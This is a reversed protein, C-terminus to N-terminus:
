ALFVQNEAPSSSPLPQEKRVSDLKSSPTWPPSRLSAFHMDAARVASLLELAVDDVVHAGPMAARTKTNRARHQLQLDRAKGTLDALDLTASICCGLCCAPSCFLM